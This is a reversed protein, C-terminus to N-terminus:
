APTTGDIKELMGARNQGNVEAERVSALQEATLGTFNADAITGSIYTSGDFPQPNQTTETGNTGATGTDQATGSLRTVAEEEVDANLDDAGAQMEALAPHGDAVLLAEGNAYGGPVQMSGPPVQQPMTPNPGTPAIPAVATPRLVPVDGVDALNPFKKQDDLDVKEGDEDVFHDPNITVLDGAPHLSGGIFTPTTLVKQIVEAEAM